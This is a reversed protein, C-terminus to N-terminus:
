KVDDTTNHNSHEGGIQFITTQAGILHLWLSLIPTNTAEGSRM